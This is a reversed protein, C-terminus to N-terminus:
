VGPPPPGPAKYTKNKTHTERELFYFIKFFKQNYNM